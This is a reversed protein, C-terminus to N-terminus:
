GAPTLNGRYPKASNQLREQNIRWVGKTQEAGLKWATGTTLRDFISHQDGSLSKFLLPEWKLGAQKEKARMRRQADELRGKAASASGLDGNTLGSIVQGWARRSEWPDQTDIPDIEMPAPKNEEAEYEYIKLIEGTKGDRIEWKDSWSGSVKYITTKPDDKHYIRAEFANRKGTLFGTGFFNMESVYGNSCPISYKGLVEPYLCASLFGRVQVDPFPILYDEDFEDIHLMAHGIQRINVTKSFTMEVRAYGDARIGEEENAIHMATVPPHHSVQEAM